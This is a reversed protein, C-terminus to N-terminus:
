MDRQPILQTVILRNNTLYKVAVDRVQEKTVANILDIYADSLQWSLGIAELAGFERAQNLMSDRTFIQKAITKIKVRKLEDDSILETQLRQIETILDKELQELTTDQTPTSLFTMVSSHLQYPNYWSDISAATKKGRILNQTLRTSNGSDLTMLLVTLAYPEWFEEATFVCPVNYGLFLSPVQATIKLTVRREGLPEEELLLKQKPILGPDINGFYIQALKFVAQPSVDGVVILVANNPSYWKKYWERVDEVTLTLLDGMWGITPHRYPNNVYAAAFFREKTRAIPNDEVRQRREEMVVNIEKAFDTAGLTLNRMRDAELAFCTALQSSEVEQHYATFDAATFANQQGGLGAIIRSFEGAPHQNTGKFMMHELAHSIGTIGEHEYSGGVKYWIESVVIPARHDEHVIVKLGNDLTYEQNTIARIEECHGLNATCWLIGLLLIHYRM